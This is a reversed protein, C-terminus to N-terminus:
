PLVIPGVSDMILPDKAFDGGGFNWDGAEIKMLRNSSSMGDYDYTAVYVKMGKLTAPNDFADGPYTLTVTRKAKDVAIEPMAMVATGPTSADAGKSSWYWNNWGGVQSFFDWTMGDPLVSNQKPMATVVSKSGPLSFYVYYMVHDFKNLPGWATSIPSDMTFTLRLSTGATSVDLKAIDCQRDRFTPDLPYTYKGAPGTDDDLADSVSLAPVWVLEVTFEYPESVRLSGDAATGAVVARHAGASLNAVPLTTRFSGSVPTGRNWNGDVVVRADALGATAGTLIGDTKWVGSPGTISPVSASAGGASPIGAGAAGAFEAADAAGEAGPEVAYVIASKAPMLLSFAGDAGLSLPLADARLSYVPSLRANGLGSALNAALMPTSGTNIVTVMSRSGAFDSRYALIGSGQRTTGFVTVDGRTFSRDGKRLKALDALYRYLRSESDFHDSGGSGYGAAFMSPRVDTFEQETGYYIVPIGPITYMFLLATELDEIKASALFRDMDHNDVFNYLKKLDGFNRKLADLRWALRDTSKGRAFVDVMDSQLSFNLLGNLEPVEPTGLYAASLKDGAENFGGGANWCEGFAVFNDKRAKKAQVMIGPAAPDESWLFDNWFGHEIYKVTDVRFSDVGAAKIWYGYSKKLADIVVQNGTNLDDLDSLQGMWRDLDNDFNSIGPTWHYISEEKQVPDTFDVMNFPSQSPANVPVSGTNREYKLEKGERTIRFFNGMHNPVIDQILYMGNRHLEKSLKRYEALTGMHRDVKMLNEAWYGHYGGYNVMPDWWQNAVPPTIWVATAGLGRIYDIKQMVGALDGGSYKAITTPDYEGKKQDSNRPNGDYFRDTLIFYIIQDAWDPSPVQLVAKGQPAAPSAAAPSAVASNKRSASSVSDPSQRTEAGLLGFSILCVALLAGSRVSIHM